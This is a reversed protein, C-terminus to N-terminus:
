GGLERRRQAMRERDQIFEEMIAMESLTLDLTESWTLGAREMLVM